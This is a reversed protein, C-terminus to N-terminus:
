GDLTAVDDDTTPVPDGMGDAAEGGVGRRRERRNTAVLVVWIVAVGVLAGLIPVTWGPLPDSTTAGLGAAASPSPSSPSATDSGSPPVPAGAIRTLQAETVLWCSTTSWRGGSRELVLARREGEPFVVHCTNITGGGLQAWVEVTPGLDGKYVGDVEFTQTTGEHDVVTEVVEGVFAADADALLKTPPVSACSCALCPSAGAVVGVGALVLALLLRVPRAVRRM